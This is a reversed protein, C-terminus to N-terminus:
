INLYFLNAYRGRLRGDTVTVTLDEAQVQPNRFSSCLLDYYREGLAIRERLHAMLRPGVRFPVSLPTSTRTRHRRQADVSRACLGGIRHVRFKTERFASSCLTGFHRRFSM